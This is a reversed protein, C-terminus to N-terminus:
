ILCAVLLAVLDLFFSIGEDYVLLNIKNITGMSYLSKLFNKKAVKDEKRWAKKLSKLDFFPAARQKWCGKESGFRM